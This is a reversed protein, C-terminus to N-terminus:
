PRRHLINFFDALKTSADRIERRGQGLLPADRRSPTPHTLDVAKKFMRCIM